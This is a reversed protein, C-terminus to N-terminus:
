RRVPMIYYTNDQELTPQIPKIIQARTPETFQFLVEKTKILRLIKKLLQPNFSITFKDNVECTKCDNVNLHKTFKFKGADVTVKLDTKNLDLTVVSLYSTKPVNKLIDLLEKRKVDMSATIKQNIINEPNPVDEPDYNTIITADDVKTVITDESFDFSLVTFPIKKYIKAIAKAYNQPYYFKITKQEAKNPYMYFEHKIMAYGNQGFAIFRKTNNSSIFFIKNTKSFVEPSSELIPLINEFSREIGIANVPIKKTDKLIEKTKTIYDIPAVESDIWNVELPIKGSKHNALEMSEWEFIIADKEIKIKFFETPIASVVAIMNDISVYTMKPTSFNSDVSIPTYVNSSTSATIIMKNSHVIIKLVKDKLGSKSYTNSVIEAIRYIQESYVIKKSM